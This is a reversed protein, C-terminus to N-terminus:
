AFNDYGQLGQLIPDNAFLDFNFPEFPEPEDTSSQNSSPGDNNSPNLGDDDDGNGGGAGNNEVGNDDESYHQRHDNNHHNNPEFLQNRQQNRNSNNHHRSSSKKRSNRLKNLNDSPHKDLIGGRIIEFNGSGLIDYKEVNKSEQKSYLNRHEDRNRIRSGSVGGGGGGNNAPTIIHDVRKNNPIRTTEISSMKRTTEPRRQSFPISPEKYAINSNRLWIMTTIILLIALIIIGAIIIIMRREWQRRQRFKQWALQIFSNKTRMTTTTTTTTAQSMTM